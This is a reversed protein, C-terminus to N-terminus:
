VTAKRDINKASKLEARKGLFVIDGRDPSSKNHSLLGNQKSCSSAFVNDIQLDM